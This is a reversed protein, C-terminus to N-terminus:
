LDRRVGRASPLFDPVEAGRLAEAGADRRTVPRAAATALPASQPLELRCAAFAVRSLVQRPASANGPGHPAPSPPPGARAPCLTSCTSPAPAPPYLTLIPPLRPRPGRPPPSSPSPSGARHEPAAADRGGARGAGDHRRGARATARFRARIPAVPFLGKSTEFRGKLGRREYGAKRM